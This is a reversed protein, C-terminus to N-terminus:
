WARLIALESATLRPGAPPMIKGTIAGSVLQLLKSDASRGPQLVPGSYGGRLADEPRDLRLGNVQQSPGHCAYCNKRFIPEVDRAFDVPPSQPTASAVLWATLLVAIPAHRLM